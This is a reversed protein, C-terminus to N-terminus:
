LARMGLGQRNRLTLDIVRFVSLSLLFRCGTHSTVHRDLKTRQGFPETRTCGLWDCWFGAQNSGSAPRSEKRASLKHQKEWHTHLLEETAFIQGCCTSSGDMHHVHWQCIHVTPKTPDDEQVLSPSGILPQLFNSTARELAAEFSLPSPETPTQTPTRSEPPSMSMYTSVRLNGHAHLIPSHHNFSMKSIQPVLRDPQRADLYGQFLGDSSVNTLTYAAEMDDHSTDMHPKSSPQNACNDERCVEGPGCQSSCSDMCESDCVSTYSKLEDENNSEPVTPGITSPNLAADQFPNNDPQGGQDMIDHVDMAPLFPGTPFPVTAYLSGQPCNIHSVLNRARLSYPLPAGRHSVHPNYLNQSAPQSGICLDDHASRHSNFNSPPPGFCCSDDHASHLGDLASLDSFLFPNDPPFFSLDFGDPTASLADRQYNQSAMIDMLDASDDM